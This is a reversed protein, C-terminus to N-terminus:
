ARPSHSLYQLVILYKFLRQDFGYHARTHPSRPKFYGAHAGGHYITFNTLSFIRNVREYDPHSNFLVASFIMRLVPIYADSTSHHHTKQFPLMGNEPPFTASLMLIRMVRSANMHAKSMKRSGAVMPVGPAALACAVAGTWGHPNGGSGAPM